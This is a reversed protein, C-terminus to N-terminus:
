SQIKARNFSYRPQLLRFVYRLLRSTPNLQMRPPPPLPCFPPPPPPPPSELAHKFGRKGAQSFFFGLSMKQCLFLWCALNWCIGLLKFFRSSIPVYAERQRLEEITYGPSRSFGYGTWAAVCSRIPFIRYEGKWWGGGGGGRGEGDGGGRGGGGGGGVCECFKLTNKGIGHSRPDMEHHWSFYISCHSWPKTTIWPTILIVWPM